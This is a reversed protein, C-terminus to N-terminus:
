KLKIKTHERKKNSFIIEDLTVKTGVFSKDGACDQGKGKKVYAITCHPIYKPFTDHHECEKLKKNLHHLDSSIVDLKIVDFDPNNDFISVKGLTLSISGENQVIKKIEDIDNTLLGYLITIHINDERGLDKQNYLDVELIHKRGWKKIKTALEAPLDVQTSSYSPEAKELLFQRFNLM